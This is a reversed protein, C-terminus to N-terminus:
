SAPEIRYSEGPRTDFVFIENETRVAVVGGDSLRRISVTNPSWPRAVRATKGKESLISLDTIVTGDYGASVLFAGAARLNQFRAPGLNNTNPFLHIVGTYSQMMCENLVAPLSFNETWMGM